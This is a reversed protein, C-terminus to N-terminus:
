EMTNFDYFRLVKDKNVRYYCLRDFEDHSSNPGLEDSCLDICLQKMNLVAIYITKDNLKM